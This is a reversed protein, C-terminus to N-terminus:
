SNGPNLLVDNDTNIKNIKFNGALNISLYEDKRLFSYIFAILLILPFIGWVIAPYWFDVFTYVWAESPNDKKYLVPLVNGIELFTEKDTTFRFPEGTPLEFKVESLLLGDGEYDHMQYSIVQGTTKQSGVLINLRNLGIYFIIILIGICFARFRCVKIERIKKETKMKFHNKFSIVLRFGAYNESSLM